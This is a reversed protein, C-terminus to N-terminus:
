IPQHSCPGSTADPPPQTQGQGDTGAYTGQTCGCPSATKQSPPTGHGFGGTTSSARHILRIHPRDDVPQTAYLGQQPSLPTGHPRGACSDPAPRGSPHPPEPRRSGSTSLNCPAAPEAQLAAAPCQEPHSRTTAGTLGCNEGARGTSQAPTGSAARAMNPGHGKPQGQPENEPPVAPRDTRVATM